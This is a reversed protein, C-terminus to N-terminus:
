LVVRKWQLRRHKFNILYGLKLKTIKLYNIMQGVELDGIKEVVKTDIIIKGFVILDPVYEGIKIGKYKMDFRSQQEFPIERQLFEVVLANEYPKEHFGPGVENHVEMACGIIEKSESRYLPEHVVDTNMLTM